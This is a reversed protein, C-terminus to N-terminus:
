NESNFIQLLDTSFDGVNERRSSGYFHGLVRLALWLWATSVAAREVNRQKCATSAAKDLVTTTVTLLLM